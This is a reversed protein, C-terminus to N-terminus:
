EAMTSQKFQQWLQLLVNQAELGSAQQMRAQADATAEYLGTIRESDQPYTEMLEEWGAGTFVEESGLGQLSTEWSERFGQLWEQESSTLEIEQAPTAWEKVYIDFEYTELQQASQKAQEETAGIGALLFFQGDREWIVTPLGAAEFKGAWEEANEMGSFVGAQLVFAEIAEIAASTGEGAAAGSAEDGGTLAPVEGSTGQASDEDMNVFMNLMIVGLVTGTMIASFVAVLVPVIPRQDKGKKGLGKKSGLKRMFSPITIKGAGEVAAAQEDKTKNEYLKVHESEQKIEKDM